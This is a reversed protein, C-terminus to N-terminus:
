KGPIVISALADEASGGKSEPQNSNIIANATIAKTLNAIQAMIDSMTPNQKEEQKEVQKPEQKEEQKPEQKEEQKPEQKEEQKEVNGSILPALATIQDANFGAQTLQIIQEITMKLERRGPFIITPAANVGRVLTQDAKRAQAQGRRGINNYM